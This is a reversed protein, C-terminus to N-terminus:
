SDTSQVVLAAEHVIIYVIDYFVCSMDECSMRLIDEGSDRWLLEGIIQSGHAAGGGESDGGAGVM